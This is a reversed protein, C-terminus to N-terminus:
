KIEGEGNPQKTQSNAKNQKILERLYSKTYGLIEKWKKQTLKEEYDVFLVSLVTMLHLFTEERSTKTKKLDYVIKM